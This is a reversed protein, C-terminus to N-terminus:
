TLELRGSSDGFSKRKIGMRDLLSLYLNCLPTEKKATLRRGSKITGCGGGALILPLDKETHRNGDRLSSGFLVMSNDLLSGHGEDINKMREILYATQKVHWHGIKEYPVKMKAANRHHSLHHFGDGGPVGDIFDFRRGTQANGYMFTSVRTSDTWFALLMIDLMLRVHEQHSKPVGQDPRALGFDGKNKWRSQPKQAAEIRREVSRVSELYEDLKGRDGAGVKNRLSKADALVHDLVSIDDRHLSDASLEPNISTGGAPPLGPRFLLDFAVQPNIANPLPTHGDRWSIHSGYIRTFGGGVNDVGTRAEDVGLQLAGLPTQNELKRAMVQDISVGGADMDRGTTRVVFGGSLWAPVKPWHGNRGVTQKNWLNELLIFRDQLHALHKLYPTDAKYSAGQGKPTWHDPVVGNPMFLFAARLPPKALPEAAYLPGAMADLFPVSLCAGAAGRLFTRRSLPKTM